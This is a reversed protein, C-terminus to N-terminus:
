DTSDADDQGSYRRNIGLRKVIWAEAWKVLKVCFVSLGCCIATRWIDIDLGLAWLTVPTGVVSVFVGTAVFLRLAAGRYGFHKGFLYAALSAPLIVPLARELYLVSALAMRGLAAIIQSWM